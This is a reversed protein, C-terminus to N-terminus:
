FHESLLIMLGMLQTTMHDGFDSSFSMFLAMNTVRFRAGYGRWAVLSSAALWDVGLLPGRKRLAAV